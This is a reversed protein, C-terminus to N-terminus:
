LPCIPFDECPGSIEVKVRVPPYIRKLPLNKPNNAQNIADPDPGNTRGVGVGLGQNIHSSSIAPSPVHIHSNSHEEAM